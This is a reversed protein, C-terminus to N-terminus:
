KKEEYPRDFLCIQRIITSPLNYLFVYILLKAVLYNLNDYKEM